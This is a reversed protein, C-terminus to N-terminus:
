PQIAIASMGKCYCIHPPKLIGKHIQIDSSSLRQLQCLFSLKNYEKVDRKYPLDTNCRIWWRITGNSIAQLDNACQINSSDVDVYEGNCSRKASEYLEDPIIEMCHAFPVRSNVDFKKDTAPNGLLYGKLNLLPKDRAEIGESIKQVIIPVVMGSYSDGAIYLPNAIFRTHSLLWKRLFENISDSFKTDGTQSGPLTRSYSFGAGVPSDVFIVSAVKTWSYPNLVFNTLQPDTPLKVMDQPAAPNGTEKDGLAEQRGTEETPKETSMPDDYPQAQEPVQAKLAAETKTVGEAFAEEEAQEKSREADMRAFEVEEKARLAEDRAYEAVGRAEVAKTLKQKLNAIQEKAVQLQGEVDRLCGTQDEAQKMIGVLDSTVNDRAKTMEKLDEREKKLGAEFRKLTNTANLYKDHEQGM